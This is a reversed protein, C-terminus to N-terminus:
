HGREGDNSGRTRRARAAREQDSTPQRRRRSRRFFYDAPFSKSDAASVRLVADSEEICGEAGDPDRGEPLYRCGARHYTDGSKEAFVPPVDRSQSVVTSVSLVAAVFLYKM